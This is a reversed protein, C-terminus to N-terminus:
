VICTMTQIIEEYKNKRLDGQKKFRELSTVRDFYTRSVRVANEKSVILSIEFRDLGTRKQTKKLQRKLDFARSNIYHIEIPDNTIKSLTSESLKIM